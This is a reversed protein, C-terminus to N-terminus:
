QTKAVVLFQDERAAGVFDTVGDVIVLLSRTRSSPSFGDGGRSQLASNKM